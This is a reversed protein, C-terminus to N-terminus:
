GPIFNFVADRLVPNNADKESIIAKDSSVKWDIGLAPDNFLIGGESERHYYEDCKYLVEASESLVSFGHAFGKPIYLQHKNEGSLELTLHKGFTPQDKRLDVVVDLITGSLVRVLKTQSYPANQFHLGRLVGFSSRSQNDQIFNANLGNVRLMKENFAEMFFGRSDSYVVPEIVYLGKFNTETIKM